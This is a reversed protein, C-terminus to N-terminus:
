EAADEDADDEDADEADADADADEVDDEDADEADVDEEDAEEGEDAGELEIGDLGDLDDLDQAGDLLSPDLGLQELSPQEGGELQQDLEELTVRKLVITEEDLEEQDDGEEAAPKFSIRDDDLFTLIMKSPEEEIVEGEEDTIEERSLEITLSNESSELIKYRGEQEDQQGMMSFRMTLTEDKNFIIGLKMMRM